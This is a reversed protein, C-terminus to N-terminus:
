WYEHYYKKITCVCLFCIMLLVDYLKCLCTEYLITSAQLGYLLCAGTSYPSSNTLTWLRNCTKSLTVIPVVLNTTYKFIFICYVYYWLTCPLCCFFLISYDYIFIVNKLDYRFDWRSGGLNLFNYYNESLLLHLYLKFLIIFSICLQWKM